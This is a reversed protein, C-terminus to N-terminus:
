DLEPQAQCLGSRSLLSRVEELVDQMKADLIRRRPILLMWVPQLSPHIRRFVERFLRRARNRRVALLSFRRSILFAV